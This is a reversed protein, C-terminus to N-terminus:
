PMTVAHCSLQAISPMALFNAAKTSLCVHRPLWFYNRNSENSTIGAQWHAYTCRRIKASKIYQQLPKLIVFVAVLPEVNFGKKIRKTCTFNCSIQLSEELTYTQLSYMSAILCHTEDFIDRRLLLFLMLCCVASMSRGHHLEDNFYARVWTAQPVSFQTWWSRRFKPEHQLIQPIQLIRRYGFVSKRPCFVSGLM